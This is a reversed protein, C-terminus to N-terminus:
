LGPFYPHDHPPRSVKELLSLDFLYRRYSQSHGHGTKVHWSTPTEVQLMRVYLCVVALVPILCRKRLASCWLHSCTSLFARLTAPSSQPLTAVEYVEWPIEKTITHEVPYVLVQLVRCV